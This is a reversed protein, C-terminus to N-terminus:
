CRFPPFTKEGKEHDSFEPGAELILTDAKSHTTEPGVDVGLVGASGSKSSVSLSMSDRRILSSDSSTSPVAHVPGYGRPNHFREPSRVRLSRTILVQM